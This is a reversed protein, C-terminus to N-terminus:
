RVDVIDFSTRSPGLRCAGWWYMHEMTGSTINCVLAEDLGDVTFQITHEDLNAVVSVKKTNKIYVRSMDEVSQLVVGRDGHHYHLLECAGNGICLWWADGSTRDGDYMTGDAHSTLGVCFQDSYSDHRYPTTHVDIDLHHVGSMFPYKTRVVTPPINRNRTPLYTVTRGEIDCYEQADAPGVWGEDIVSLHLVDGNHLRHRSASLTEAHTGSAGDTTTRIICQDTTHIGHEQELAVRLDRLNHETNNVDMGVTDNNYTVSVRIMNADANHQVVYCPDPTSLFFFM